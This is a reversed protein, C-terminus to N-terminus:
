ESACRRGAESATQWRQASRGEEGLFLILFGDLVPPAVRRKLYISTSGAGGGAKRKEGLGNKATM